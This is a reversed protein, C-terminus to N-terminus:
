ALAARFAALGDEGLVALIFRPLQERLAALAASDREIDRLASNGTPPSFVHGARVNAAHQAFREAMSESAEVISERLRDIEAGMTVLMYTSQETIGRTCFAKRVAAEYSIM